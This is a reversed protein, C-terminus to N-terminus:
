TPTSRTHKQNVLCLRPKLLRELREHLELLEYDTQRKIFFGVVGHLRDSAAPSLHQSTFVQGWTIVLQHQPDLRKLRALLEIVMDALPDGSTPPLTSQTM